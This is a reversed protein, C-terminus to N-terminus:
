QSNNKCDKPDVTTWGDRGPKDKMHCLVAFDHAMCEKRCDKTKESCYTTSGNKKLFDLTEINPHGHPNEGVPIFATKPSLQRVLAEDLGTKSGHHPVKLFPYSKGQTVERIVDAGADGTFLGYPIGDYALEIIISADNSLSTPPAQEGREVIYKQLISKSLITIDEIIKEAWAAELRERTPNLVELRVKGCTWPQGSLAQQVSVNRRRAVDLLNNAAELSKEIKQLPAVKEFSKLLNRIQLWRNFTGPTNLILLGVKVNELVDALGGIHDDDLHSGIVIDIYGSAYKNIHDIIRKSREGSGGDILVHAEKGGSDDLTTLFSDGEGVSIMEIYFGM